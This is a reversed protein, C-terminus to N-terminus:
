TFRFLRRTQDELMLVQMELPAYKAVEDTALPESHPQPTSEVVVSPGGGSMGPFLFALVDFGSGIEEQACLRRAVELAPLGDLNDRCFADVDSSGEKDAWARLAALAEETTQWRKGPNTVVDLESEYGCFNCKAHVSAGQVIQPDHVEVLVAEIRCNPCSALSQFARSM